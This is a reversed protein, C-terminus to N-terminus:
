LHVSGYVILGALIVLSVIAATLPGWEDERPWPDPWRSYHGSPSDDIRTEFRSDKMHRLNEQHEAKM